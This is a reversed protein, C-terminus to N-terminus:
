ILDEGKFKKLVKSTMPVEIKGLDDFEQTERTKRKM